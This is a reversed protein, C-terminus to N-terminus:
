ADRIAESYNDRYIVIAEARDAAIMAKVEPLDFM